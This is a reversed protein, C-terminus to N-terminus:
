PVDKWAKAGFTKLTVKTGNFNILASALDSRRLDTLAHLFKVYWAAQDGVAVSLINGGDHEILVKQDFLAFDAAVVSKAEYFDLDARKLLFRELDDKEFHFTELANHPGLMADLFIGPNSDGRLEGNEDLGTRIFRLFDLQPGMMIRLKLYGLSGNKERVARLWTLKEESTFAEQGESDRQLFWAPPFKELDHLALFSHQSLELHQPLVKKLYVQSSKPVGLCHGPAGFNNWLDKHHNWFRQPLTQWAEKAELALVVSRGGKDLLPVTFYSMYLVMSFLAVILAVLVSVDFPAGILLMLLAGSVIAAITTLAEWANIDDLQSKLKNLTEMEIRALIRPAASFMAFCLLLFVIGLLFASLSWSSKLAVFPVAIADRYSDAWANVCRLFPEVSEKEVCDHITEVAEITM